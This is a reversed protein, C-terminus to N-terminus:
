KLARLRELFTVADAYNSDNKLDDYTNKHARNLIVSQVDDYSNNQLFENGRFADADGSNSMDRYYDNFANMANTGNGYNVRHAINDADLDSIYDDHGFAVRKGDERM